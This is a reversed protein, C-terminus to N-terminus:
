GPVPMGAFQNLPDAPMTQGGIGATKIRSLPIALRTMMPQALIDSCLPQPRHRVPFVDSRWPFGSLSYEGERLILHPCHINQFLARKLIDRRCQFSNVFATVDIRVACVQRVVPVKVPDALINCGPLFLGCDVLKSARLQTSAVSIHEGSNDLVRRCTVPPNKLHRPAPIVSN